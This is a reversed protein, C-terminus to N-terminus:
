ILIDLRGPDSRPGASRPAPPENSKGNAHPQAFGGGGRSQEHSSQSQQGTGQPSNGSSRGSFDVDFREVKINHDALRERLAPLNDMLLSRAEETEVEVRAEMAGKRVTLHLKLSGLEPPSLAMRITGNRDGMAEFARAVRQVFRVRDAQEMGPTKEGQTTTRQAPDASSRQVAGVDREGGTPRAQAVPEAVDARVQPAAVGPDAVTPQMTPTAPNAVTPNEANSSPQGSPQDSPDQGSRNGAAQKQRGVQRRAETRLESAATLADQAQAEQQPAGDSAGQGPNEGGSAAEAVTMPQPTEQSAGPKTAPEAAQAVTVDTAAQGTSEAANGEAATEEKAVAKKATQTQGESPTEGDTADAGKLAAPNTEAQGAGPKKQKGNETALVGEAAIAENATAEGENAESVAPKAEANVVAALAAAEAAEEDEAEEDAQQEAEDVADAEDESDADENQSDDTEESATSQGVTSQDAEDAQSTRDEAPRESESSSAPGPGEDANDVTSWARDLHEEFSNGEAPSTGSASDMVSFMDLPLLTSLNDLNLRM